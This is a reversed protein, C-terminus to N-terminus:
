GRVAGSAACDGDMSSSRSAATQLSSSCYHEKNNDFFVPYWGAPDRYSEGPVVAATHPTIVLVDSPTSIDSACLISKFREIMTANAPAVVMAKPVTAEADAAM